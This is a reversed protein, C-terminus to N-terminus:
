LKKYRKHLNIFNPNRFKMKGTINKQFAKFGFSIEIKGNRGMVWLANGYKLPHIITM